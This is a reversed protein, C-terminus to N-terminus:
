QVNWQQVTQFHTKKTKKKNTQKNKDRVSIDTINHILKNNKYMGVKKNLKKM